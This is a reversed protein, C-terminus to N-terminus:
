GVTITFGTRGVIQTMDAFYLRWYCETAIGTCTAPKSGDAASQVGLAIVRNPDSSLRFVPGGSDGKGVANARDDRQAEVGNTVIVGNLSYSVWKLTIRLSCRVGSYSGSQCVYQGVEPPGWGAVAKSFEGIGQGTPDVGGDYIRGRHDGVPIFLAELDAVRHNATGVGIPPFYTGSPTRWVAGTPGCHAATILVKQGNRQGAFGSTCRGITTPSVQREITSGGWFPSTDAWRGTATPADGVEVKTPMATLTRPDAMRAQATVRVQLGSGDTLPAALVVGTGSAVLRTAEAKLERLAYAAPLVKIPVRPRLQGVVKAVAPPPTGKWYLRLETSGVLEIGAFNSREEDVVARIRTAADVLPRQSIQLQDVAGGPGPKPRASAPGAVGALTVAAVASTVLVNRLARRM